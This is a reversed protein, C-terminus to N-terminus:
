TQLIKVLHGGLRITIGVMPQSMLKACVVTLQAMQRRSAATIWYMRLSTPQSRLTLISTRRERGKRWMAMSTVSLTKWSAQSYNITTKGNTQGATPDKSATNAEAVIVSTSEPGSVLTPPERFSKLRQRLGRRRRARPRQLIVLLKRTSL